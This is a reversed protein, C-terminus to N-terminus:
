GRGSSVGADQARYLMTRNRGGRKAAYLAQDAFEILESLERSHTPFEAIGLSLTVSFRGNVGEFTLESVANRIREALAFAQLHDTEELFIGFEEGGYRAGLDTKRLMSRLVEAVAKIVVDGTAHGHTDNVKKFFDIDTLLLCAIRQSREARMMAETSRLKFTRHNLLGTMGDTTAAVVAQDYALANALAGALNAVVTDIFARRSLPFADRTDSGFVCTGICRGGILIPVVLVSEFDSMYGPDGYVEAPDDVRGRLPLQQQSRAALSILSQDSVPVRFGAQLGTRENLRFVVEQADSEVLRLVVFYDLELQDAFIRASASCVETATLAKYLTEVARRIAQMEEAIRRLETVNQESRFTGVILEGASQLTLADGDSFARESDSGVVFAGLPIGDNVLGIGMVSRPMCSESYWPLLESRISVGSYRLPAPRRRLMALMGSRVNVQRTTEACGIAHAIVAPGDHADFWVVTASNCGMSHMAMELTHRVTTHMERLADQVIPKLTGDGSMAAPSAARRLIAELTSRVRGGHVPAALLFSMGAFGLVTGACIAVAEVTSRAAPHSAADVAALAAMLAALPLRTAFAALGGALTFVVAALTPDPVLDGVGVVAALALVVPENLSARSVPLARRRWLFFALALALVTLTHLPRHAAVMAVLPVWSLLLFVQLHWGAGSRSPARRRVPKPAM